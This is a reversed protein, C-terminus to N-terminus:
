GCGLLEPAVVFRVVGGTDDVRVFAPDQELAAVAERHPCRQRRSFPELM